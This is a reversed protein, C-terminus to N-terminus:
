SEACSEAARASWQLPRSLKELHSSAASWAILTGIALTLVALIIMLRANRLNASARNYERQTRKMFEVYDIPDESERPTGHGAAAVNLLGTLALGFALVFLVVTAAARGPPLTDLTTPASVFAVTGVIGLLATLFTEWKGAAAQM